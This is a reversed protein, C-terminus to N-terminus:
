PRATSAGPKAKGHVSRLAAAAEQTWAHEPGLRRLFGQYAVGYYKGAEVAKGRASLVDALNSAALATREHGIGFVEAVAAYAKRQLAEAEVLKGAALLASALNNLTASTELDKGGPDMALTQRFVRIAETLNDKERWCLGLENGRAITAELLQAEAFLECAGRIQGLRTLARAARGKDKAERLRELAPLAQGSPLANSLLELDQDDQTIEYAFRLPEAAGPRQNRLRFQGLDRAAAAAELSREGHASQQRRWQDAYLSELQAVNPQYFGVLLLAEILM